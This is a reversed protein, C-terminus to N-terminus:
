AAKPASTSTLDHDDLNFNDVMSQLNGAVQNLQMVESKAEDVAQTTDVTGQVLENIEISIGSTGTAVHNISKSIEQTTASQQEMSSATNKQLENIQQVITDIERIGEAAGSSKNQIARIKMSIDETAKATEKALEKVENAVVAFGKGADGARAAEITANLALLNTQEAISNIVKVMAGIDQSSSALQTVNDDAARTLEAAQSAVTTSRQTNKVIEKINANMQEAAGAISDVNGSISHVATSVSNAQQSASIANSELKNNVKIVSDASTSVITADDKLKSIMESLQVVTANADDHLQLFQGNLVLTSHKRWTHSLDGNALRKFVDGASSIVSNCVGLMDNVGNYVPVLFDPKGKADISSSLNGQLADEVLGMVDKGVALEVAHEDTRDRIEIVTGIAKHEDSYVPSSIFRLQRNGVECDLETASTNPQDSSSILQGECLFDMSQGLIDDHSFGPIDRAIDAEFEQFFHNASINCYNIKQAVDAVLVPSSVCDLAQKIRGNVISQRREENIRVNLKDQMIALAQMLQSPEDRGNIKITNDLQDDAIAEALTKAHIITLSISRGVVFTFLMAVCITALVIALMLNREREDGAIRNQLLRRLEANVASFLEYGRTVSIDTDEFAQQLLAPTSNVRVRELSELAITYSEKFQNKVDDLNTASEPNHFVATDITDIALAAAVGIKELTYLHDLQYMFGSKETFEVKYRNLASIAPLIKMVVADMLYYSDLEPDLILNSNDGVKLALTSVSKITEDHLLTAEDFSMGPESNFLLEINERKEDWASGLNLTTDLESHTENMEKISAELQRRVDSTRELNDVLSSSYAIRHEEVLAHIAALPQLYASGTIEKAAFEVSESAQRALLFTAFVAPLAALLIILTFKYKLRLNKM